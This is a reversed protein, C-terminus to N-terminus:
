KTWEKRKRAWEPVPEGRREARKRAKYRAVSQRAISRGREEWCRLCRIATYARGHIIGLCDVCMPSAGTVPHAHPHRM